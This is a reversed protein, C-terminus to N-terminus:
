RHALVAVSVNDGGGRALAHNVLCRALLSPSAGPGAARVIGAIQLASPFYNWLGDSCLVVHGAGPLDRVKVEPEVETIKEEGVELPGL